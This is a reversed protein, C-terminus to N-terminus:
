IVKPINCNSVGLSIKLLGQSGSSGSFIFSKNEDDKLVAIDLVVIAKGKVIGVPVYVTFALANLGSLTHPESM